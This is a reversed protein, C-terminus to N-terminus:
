RRRRFGLDIDLIYVNDHMTIAYQGPQSFNLYYYTDDYTMKYDNGVVRCDERRYENENVYRGEHYDVFIKGRTYHVYSYVAKLRYVNYRNGVVTPKKSSLFMDDLDVYEKRRMFGLVTSFKDGIEFNDDFFLPMTDCIDDYEKMLRSLEEQLNKKVFLAKKQRPLPKYLKSQEETMLTMIVKDDGKAVSDLVYKIKKLDTINMDGRQRTVLKIFPNSKFFEEYLERDDMYSLDVLIKKQILSANRNILYCAQYTKPAMTRNAVSLFDRIFTNFARLSSKSYSFVPMIGLIPRFNQTYWLHCPLNPHYILDSMGRFVNVSDLLILHAAPWAHIYKDVILPSCNLIDKFIVLTTPKNMERARVLLDEGAMYSVHVKNVSALHIMRTSTDCSTIRGSFYDPIKTEVCGWGSGIVCVERYRRWPIFCALSKADAESRCFNDRVWGDNKTVDSFTEKSDTPNGDCRELHSLLATVNYEPTEILNDNVYDPVCNIPLEPLSLEYVSKLKLNESRSAPTVPISKLSGMKVGVANFFQIVMKDDIRFKTFDYDFIYKYDGLTGRRPFLAAGTMMIAEAEECSKLSSFIEKLTADPGVSCPIILYKRKDFVIEKGERSMALAAYFDGNLSLGSPRSDRDVQLKESPRFASYAVTFGANKVHM